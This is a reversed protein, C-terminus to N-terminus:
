RRWRTSASTEAVDSYGTLSLRRDLRDAPLRRDAAHPVNGRRRTRRPTRLRGARPGSRPPRLPQRGPPAPLHRKPLRLRRVRGTRWGLRPARPRRCDAQSPPSRGIVETLARQDAAPLGLEDVVGIGTMLPPHHMAVITPTERDTDLARELWQIRDPGYSGENRGPLTTDCVVLRLPGVHATYQILGDGAPAGLYERLGERDDHNGAVVHIPMSLPALLESACRSEEASGTEVLDGSILLAQPAPDLAAISAAAAELARASVGGDGGLRLHVDSIQALVVVGPSTMRDVYHKEDRGNV